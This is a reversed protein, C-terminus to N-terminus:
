LQYEKIKQLLTPYSMELMIAAKSKNGNNKDLAKKILKSELERTAEKISYGSFTFSDAGTSAGYRVAGAAGLNELHLVDTDALVVERQIVNELERVNGPWAYRLMEKKSEPTFRQITCGFKKNYKDIFHRALLPIDDVRERLPPLPLTLVNLRYFLDERFRGECVERQLDRGTAALIRVDIERLSSDGIRRVEREQLVRLLKVQMPLPLEGIEDLFLTSGNAEEFIGKKNKEAGTFSGRMHGFLESEILDAPFSGCNIAFFPKDGRASLRHIGRAFLEKGTGSEGLILVSTDYQAVKEAIGLVKKLAESEGVINSFGDERQMLKNKLLRNERKLQEREEAKRLTLIVEDTKFPKSIFDYAGRKMCEIALDISGYASMMIVTTNQLEDRNKQLFELGTIGPMRVDCLVFDFEREAVLRGAETGDAASIITFGHRSLMANLMHRMNEEDDVILITKQEM